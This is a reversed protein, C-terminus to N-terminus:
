DTVRRGDGMVYLWDGVTVAAASDLAEPLPEVPTWDHIADVLPQAQTKTAALTVAIVAIGAVAVLLMAYRSGFGRTMNPNVM